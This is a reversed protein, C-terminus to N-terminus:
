VRSALRDLLAQADALGPKDGKAAYLEFGRHAEAIAEETRGLASLVGALDLWARATFRLSDTRSWYELSTRAHREAAAGDGAALALHSRTANNLAYNIVDEAATLRDSFEIAACAAQRDDLCAYAYGLLAQTTSRLAGEGLDALIADSRLLAAAAGAPNGASIEIQGMDQELGGQAAGMGLAGLVDIARQTFQRAGDFNGALRELEGRGLKLFAALYPGLDEEEMASIEADVTSSDQPGYILTLVYQALARSRMGGDGAIRAYDAVLRLQEGATTAQTALWSVSSAVKHARALAHADDAETFREILQPLRAQVVPIAGQPETHLLWEFRAVEALDAVEPEREAALLLEDVRGLDGIDMLRDALEVCSRARIVSDEPACAAARELLNTAAAVDGRAGARSGAAHLHAAAREALAVEAGRGLERQYRVAQELHWGSIEDLEPLESANDELWSAFRAHLQTRTSMAVSDYAADRILLHRFRFAQDGQLTPPHPRLLEKRVLNAISRQLQEGDPQGSLAHVAARHFVEGEIAGHELFEREEVPLRELRAALLAQITPPITPTGHERALAAMEELFLPNGDSAAIVRAREGLALADGRQDLLLECDAAALPELLATTANLKGGGWMPRDDLLEPRASCLVLIPAGRSLGVVHDILDQLMSEAWQLDDIHLIVPRQSALTELL